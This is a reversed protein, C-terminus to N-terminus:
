RDEEHRSREIQAELEMQSYMPDGGHKEAAHDRAVALLDDDADAQVRIGCVCEFTKM